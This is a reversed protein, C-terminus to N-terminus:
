KARARNIFREPFYALCAGVAIIFWTRIDPTFPNPNFKTYALFHQVGVVNLVVDFFWAVAGMAIDRRGHTGSLVHMEVVMFLLSIVIDAIIIGITAANSGIGGFNFWEQLAINTFFAGGLWLVAGGAFLVIKQAPHTEDAAYHHSVTARIKAPREVRERRPMASLTESPESDPKRSLPVTRPAQTANSPSPIDPMGIAGAMSDFRYKTNNNTPM